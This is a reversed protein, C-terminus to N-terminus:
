PFFFSLITYSFPLFYLCSSESLVLQMLRDQCFAFGASKKELLMMSKGYSKMVGCGLLVPQTACATKEKWLAVSNWFCKPQSLGGLGRLEAQSWGGGQLWGLASLALDLYEKFVELSPPELM